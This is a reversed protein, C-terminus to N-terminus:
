GNDVNREKYRALKEDASKMCAYVFSHMKHEEFHAFLSIYVVKEDDFLYQEFLHWIDAYAFSKRWYEYKGEINKCDSYDDDFNGLYIEENYRKKVTDNSASEWKKAIEEFAPIGLWTEYDYDQDCNNQFYTTNDFMDQTCDPVGFVGLLKHEPLYFYRYTFTKFAWLIDDSNIVDRNVTRRAPCFFAERESIEKFSKSVKDKLKQFFPYIEDAEINKFSVTCYYSM